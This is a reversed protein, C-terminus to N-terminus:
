PDIPQDPLVGSSSADPGCAPNERNVSQGISGDVEQVKDFAVGSRSVGLARDGKVPEPFAKFDLGDFSAPANWSGLTEADARVISTHEFEEITLEIVLPSDMRKLAAGPVWCGAALKGRGKHLECKM